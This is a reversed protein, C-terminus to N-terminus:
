AAIRAQETLRYIDFNWTTEVLELGLQDIAQQATDNQIIHAITRDGPFYVFAPSLGYHCVKLWNGAELHTLLKSINRELLTKADM